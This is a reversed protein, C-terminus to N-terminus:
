GGSDQNVLVMQLLFRVLWKVGYYANTVAALKPGPFKALPHLFLLYFCRPAAYSLVLACGAAFLTPWSQSKVAAIQSVVTQRLASLATTLQM